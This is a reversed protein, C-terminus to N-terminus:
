SYHWTLQNKKIYIQYVPMIECAPWHRRVLTSVRDSRKSLWSNLSPHWGLDGYDFYVMGCRVLTSVRDSRRSLWSNIYPQSGLDGYDFYVM